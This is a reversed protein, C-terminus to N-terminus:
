GKLREAEERLSAASESDPPVVTPSRPTKTKNQKRTGTKYIYSAKAERQGGGNCQRSGFTFAFVSVISLGGVVGDWAAVVLFYVLYM